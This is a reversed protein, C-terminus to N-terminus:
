ESMGEIRSCVGSCILVSSSKGASELGEEVEECAEFRFLLRDEICLLMLAPGLVGVLLLLLLMAAYL